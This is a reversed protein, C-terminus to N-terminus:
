TGQSGTTNALRAMSALLALAAHNHIFAGPHSRNIMDSAMEHWGQGVLSHGGLMEKAAVTVEEDLVEGNNPERGGDLFQQALARIGVM